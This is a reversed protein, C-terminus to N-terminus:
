IYKDYQASTIGFKEVSELPIGSSKIKRLVEEDVGARIEDALYINPAWKDFYDRVWKHLQYYNGYRLSRILRRFYKLNRPSLVWHFDGLREAFNNCYVYEASYSSLNIDRLLLVDPRVIVIQSYRGFDGNAEFLSIVKSIALTSSIGAFSEDFSEIAPYDIKATGRLRVALRSILNAPSNWRFFRAIRANRQSRLVLSDLYSRYDTNWEFSSALPRYIATLEDRLDPNWSQLFFDFKLNPNAAILHRFLPEACARYNVYESSSASVQTPDLLRGSERAIGGRVLVAVGSM